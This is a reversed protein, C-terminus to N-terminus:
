YIYTPQYNFLIIIYTVLTEKIAIHRLCIKRQSKGFKYGNTFMKVIFM